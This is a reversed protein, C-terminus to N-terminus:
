EPPRKASIVSRVQDYKRISLNFDAMILGKDLTKTKRGLSVNYYKDWDSLVNEAIEYANFGRKEQLEREDDDLGEEANSLNKAAKELRYPYYEDELDKPLPPLTWETIPYGLGRNNVTGSATIFLNHTYIKKKAENKQLYWITASVTNQNPNKKKIWIFYNAVRDRLDKNIFGQTPTTIFYGVKNTGSTEFYHRLQIAKKEMSRKSDAESGFDDLMKCGYPQALNMIKYFDKLYFVIDGKISFPVNNITNIKRILEATTISKGVRKEGYVTASFDEGRKLINAFYKALYISDLSIPRSVKYSWPIRLM